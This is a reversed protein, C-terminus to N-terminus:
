FFYLGPKPEVKRTPIRKLLKGLFALTSPMYDAMNTVIVNRLRIRNWIAEIIPYFVDLAVLTEARSDNVQYEVEREKALPSIATVIAGLRMAGYYAIVFQPCNPLYLTVVDGKKVGLEALPTAFKKTLVALEKFTIKKGYYILALRDPWREAAKDVVDPLSVEPIEIHKTIGFKEYIKFWPRDM